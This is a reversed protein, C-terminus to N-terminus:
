GKKGEPGRFGRGGKEGKQGDTGTDGKNDIGSGPWVGRLIDIGYTGDKNVLHDWNKKSRGM